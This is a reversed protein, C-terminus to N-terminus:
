LMSAISMSAISMVYIGLSALDVPSLIMALGLLVYSCAPQSFNPHILM